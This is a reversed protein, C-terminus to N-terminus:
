VDGFSEQHVHLYHTGALTVTGTIYTFTVTTDGDNEYVTVDPTYADATTYVTTTTGMTFNTGDYRGALAKIEDSSNQWTIVFYDHIEIDINPNSGGGLSYPGVNSWYGGSYSKIMYYIDGDCEFVIIAKDAGDTVCVVDPDTIDNNGCTRTSIPEEGNTPVDTDHWVFQPSDGDCVMVEMFTAENILKIDNGTNVVNPFVDNSTNDSTSADYITQSIVLTSSVIFIVVLTFYKINKM